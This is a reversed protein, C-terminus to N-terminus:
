KAAMPVFDGNEIIAVEQDHWRIKFTGQLILEEVQPSTGSLIFYRYTHLMEPTICPPTPPVPLSKRYRVIIHKPMFIGPVISQREALLFKDIHQYLKATHFKVPCAICNKPLTKLGNYYSLYSQEFSKEAAQFRLTQLACSVCMVIIWILRITKHLSVPYQILLLGWFFTIFLLREGPRVLNPLEIPAILFGAVLIFFILWKESFKSQIFSFIALGSYLAFVPLFPIWSSSETVGFFIRLTKINAVINSITVVSAGRIVLEDANTTAGSGDWLFFCVTLILSPVLPWIKKWEITEARAHRWFFSISFILYWTLLCVLHVGYLGLGAIAIALDQRPSTKLRNPWWYGVLFFLLGTGLLFNLNGKFFVNTLAITFSFLAIEEHAPANRHICFVVGAVMFFVSFLAYIKTTTAPDFFILLLANVVDPLIYPPPFWTLRFYEQFFPSFFFDKLIAARGIHDPLDQLMLIKRTGVAFIILASCLTIGILTAIRFFRDPETEPISAKSFTDQKKPNESIQPLYKSKEIPLRCQPCSGDDTPVVKLLCHHCFEIAMRSRERGSISGTFVADFRSDWQYKITSICDSFRLRM